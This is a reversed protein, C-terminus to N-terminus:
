WFTYSGLHQGSAKVIYLAKKFILFLDPVLRGAENEAHNQHFIYRVNYKILQDFIMSQNGKSRSIDRLMHITVIQQGAQPMMFKSISRLTKGISKLCAEIFKKWITSGRISIRYKTKALKLNTKSKSINLNSSRTSYLHFIKQFCGTFVPPSVRNHVGHMFVAVSLINLKYINQENTSKFLKKAHEFKTKDVIRIAHKQQSRM